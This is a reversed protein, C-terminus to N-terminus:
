FTTSFLSSIRKTVEPFSHIFHPDPVMGMENVFHPNTRDGNLVCVTKWQAKFHINHCLLLLLKLAVDLIGDAGASFTV